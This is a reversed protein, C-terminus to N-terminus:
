KLYDMLETFHISFRLRSLAKAEIKRIWEKTFSLKEGIEKLTYNKGDVLGFRLQLVLAERPPLSLLLDQIQKKLQNQAITETSPLISDDEVFDGLIDNKYDGVPMEWRLHKSKARLLLKVKEETMGMAEALQDITPEGDPKQTLQKIIKSLRRLDSNAHVPVRITRGQNDIARTIAQRIWWTAHTSFKKGRSYEFKNVAKMLGINGEQILDLFLIGRGRYKKAVSIVLRTNAKIMLEWAKQGDAVAKEFKPRLKPNIDSQALKQAASKGREMQKALDIEERATLLPTQGIKILYLEVLDDEEIAQVIGEDIDEKADISESAVPRAMFATVKQPRFPSTRTYPKSKFHADASIDLLRELHPM